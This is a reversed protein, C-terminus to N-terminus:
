SSLVSSLMAQSAAITATPMPASVAAKGRSAGAPALVSWTSGRVSCVESSPMKAAPVGDVPRRHDGVGDALSALRRVHDVAVHLPQLQRAEDLRQGHDALGIHEGALGAVAHALRQRRALRKRVRRVSKLSSSGGSVSSSARVAAPRQRSQPTHESHWSHM